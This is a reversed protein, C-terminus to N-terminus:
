SKLRLIRWRIWDVIKYVSYLLPNIVLDWTGVFEVLEGGYGEKFRHFGYWPDTKDPEPGLSGWFDFRKCGAAKALQLARWAVLNSAMLERYEQSSAGYPYYGVGNFIFIVWATLITSQQNNIISQQNRAVLLRAIGAERMTQWMLKRYKRDHAYFHQRKTTEETLRQFAEFAADSNDEKVVVGKKEALRINYRTKPKMGALLEEESKTLDVQFTFPTFLAKGPRLELDSLFLGQLSQEKLVTGEVSVNPEFKVFICNQKRAEAKVTEIMEKTPMAGRPCYGVSWPLGPIKHVSFQTAEALKGRNFWGLRVIRQGLKERFEGWAWSQLPHTALRDFQSRYNESVIEFSKM